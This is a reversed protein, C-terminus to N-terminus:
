LAATFPDAPTMHIRGALIDTATANPGYVKKNMSDDIDIVAGDLAVGAFLGKARSYAYIATKLNANVGAEAERGLPGAVVGADVGLKLDKGSGLLDMAKKDTFVLVLDTATAGLQLGFSGGGIQVFAPSSWRGDALREAVVGKGYRGGIGFAGKVM